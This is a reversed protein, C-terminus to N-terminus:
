HPWPDRGVHQRVPVVLGRRFVLGREFQVGAGNIDCRDLLTVRQQIIAARPKTHSLLRQQTSFHGM